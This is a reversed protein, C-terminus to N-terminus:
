SCSYEQLGATLHHINGGAGVVGAVAAVANTVSSAAHDMLSGPASMTGGVAAQSTSAAQTAPSIKPKPMLPLSIHKSSRRLM